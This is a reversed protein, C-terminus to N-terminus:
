QWGLSSIRGCGTAQMIVPMVGLRRAACPKLSASKMVRTCACSAAGPVQAKAAVNFRALRMM